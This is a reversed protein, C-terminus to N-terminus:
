KKQNDIVRTGDMIDRNVLMDFYTFATPPLKSKASNDIEETSVEGDTKLIPANPEPLTLNNRGRLREIEQQFKLREENEDPPPGWLAGGSGPPPLPREEDPSTESQVRQLHAEFQPSLKTNDNM